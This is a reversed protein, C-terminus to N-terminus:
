APVRPLDAGEMVKSAQAEMRVPDADECADAHRLRMWFGLWSLEDVSLSRLHRAVWPRIKMIRGTSVKGTDVIRDMRLDSLKALDVYKDIRWRNPFGKHSYMLKYLTTPWTLFDFETYRDLQHSKLDVKHVSVGDQKLSGRIDLMTKGLDNVHELVSRSIILDYERSAGSLGDRAVKYRIADERFGSAPNGRENFAGEARARAEGDLSGILHLYTEISKKSVRSLPFRDVCHVVRAGHAYFLLAVGLTDGPGYELVLKGDLYSRIDQVGLGLYGRYDDFCGTFYRAVEAADGEGENRGTQGTLRVYMNPAFIALQNTLVSKFFHVADKAVNETYM